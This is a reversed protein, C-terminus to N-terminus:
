VFGEHSSIRKLGRRCARHTTVVVATRTTHSVTVLRRAGSSEQIAFALLILPVAIAMACLHQLNM